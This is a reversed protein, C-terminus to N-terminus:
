LSLLTFTFIGTLEKSWGGDVSPITTLPHTPLYTLQNFVMSTYQDFDTDLNKKKKIELVGSGM